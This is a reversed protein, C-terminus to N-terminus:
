WRWPSERVSEWLLASDFRTTNYSTSHPQYFALLLADARDPSKIGRKKADAKSEIIPHTHKSDYSYRVSSLQAITTETLNGQLEHVRFRERVDWWLECRLNAFKQPDSPKCSVNIDQVPYGEERLRDAVGSGVGIVDVNIADLDALYPDLLERTKGVTGMTDLSNWSYEALVTNQQRICLANEDSGFRAVDLGASIACPRPRPPSTTPQVQALSTEIWALPILTTEGQMPFTAYIRSQVYPSDEGFSRIVDHTWAPTILYPRVVAQDPSTFNPTDFASITLTQFLSRNSHFADYFSGDTSTPNGILLMRASESSMISELAQYVLPSVGSAEDIIVLAHEAHFGQFRDPQTDEAKFGLAYWDSAIDYRTNLCRGLLKKKSNQYATRVERWLINEVQNATPATTIVISHPFAHLFWLVLRAAIFSKGASHCSKVAVRRYDRIACAIDLQRQWVDVGLWDTFFANPENQWLACHVQSSQPSALLRAIAIRTIPSTAMAM